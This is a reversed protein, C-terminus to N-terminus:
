GEPSSARSVQERVQAFLQAGAATFKVYTGSEHLLLWGKAIAREIYIRSEQVANGGRPTGESM